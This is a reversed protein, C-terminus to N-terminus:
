TDSPFTIYELLLRFIIVVSILDYGLRGRLRVLHDGHCDIGALGASVPSRIFAALPFECFLSIVCPVIDSMDCYSNTM